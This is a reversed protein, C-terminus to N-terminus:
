HGKVVEKRLKSENGKLSKVIQSKSVFEKSNLEEQLLSLFAADEASETYKRVKAIHLEQANELLAKLARGKKSKEDITIIYEAM